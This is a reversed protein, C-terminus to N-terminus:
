AGRGHWGVLAVNLWGEIALPEKRGEPPPVPRERAWAWSDLLWYVALLIVACILFEAFLHTTPWFFSM